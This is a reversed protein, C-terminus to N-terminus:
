TFRPFIRAFVSFQWTCWLFPNETLFQTPLPTSFLHITFSIRDNHAHIHTHPRLKNLIIIWVCKHTNNFIDTWPMACVRSVNSLKVPKIAPLLFTKRKTRKFYDRIWSHLFPLLAGAGASYLTCKIKQEPDPSQQATLEERNSAFICYLYMRKVNWVFFPQSFFFFCLQFPMMGM